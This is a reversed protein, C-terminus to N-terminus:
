GNLAAFCPKLLGRVSRRSIVRYYIDNRYNRGQEHDESYLRWQEDQHAFKVESEGTTPDMSWTIIKCNKKMGTSSNVFYM